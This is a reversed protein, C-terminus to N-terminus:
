RKNGMPIYILKTGNNKHKIEDVCFKCIERENTGRGYAYGKYHTNGCIACRFTYSIAVGIDTRVMDYLEKKSIRNNFRSIISTNNEGRQLTISSEKKTLPTFISPNVTHHTTRKNKINNNRKKEASDVIKQLIRPPMFELRSIKDQKKKKKKPSSASQEKIDENVANKKVTPLPSVLNANEQYIYNRDNFDKSSLTSISKKGLLVTKSEIIKGKSKYDKSEPSSSGKSTSHVPEKNSTVKDEEAIVTKLKELCFKWDKSNEKILKNINQKM